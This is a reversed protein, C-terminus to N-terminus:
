GQTLNLVEQWNCKIRMGNRKTDRRIPTILRREPGSPLHRLGAADTNENFTHLTPYFCISCMLLFAGVIFVFTIVGDFMNLVQVFPVSTQKHVGVCHEPM